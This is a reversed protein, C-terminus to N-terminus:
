PETFSSFARQLASSKLRGEYYNGDSMSLSDNAYYLTLGTLEVVALVHYEGIATPTLGM